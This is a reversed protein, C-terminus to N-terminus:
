SPHPHIDEFHLPELDRSLLKELQKGCKLDFDNPHISIRLPLDKRAARSIQHRNWIDLFARRLGTDAEFGCLPLSRLRYDSPPAPFIIGRTVEICRYPLNAIEKRSLPGLAWAPPVYADPEPLGKACFWEKSKKMLELIGNPDLDLHEAVNRSVLTSHIRHYLRRPRTEHKWGHAVPEAGDHFWIKLRDIQNIEWSRGPVVLLSYRDIGVNQLTTIIEGVQDMTEPMVDHISILARV